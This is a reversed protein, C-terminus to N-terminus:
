LLEIVCSESRRPFSKLQNNVEAEKESDESLIPECYLTMRELVTANKLLLSLFHMEAPKGEFNSLSFRKFCCCSPVRELMLCVEHDHIYDSDFGQAFDLFELKPSKELLNILGGTLYSSFEANLELGTMNPFTPLHGLIDEADSISLLTDASVALSKVNCIGTLVGIARSVHQQSLNRHPLDISANVLSSIGCLHFHGKLTSTFKLHILNPANVKVACSLADAWLSRDDEITLRKLTPVSITLTKINKWGCNILALEQLVPCNSFLHQTSEDDSFTLNDFVLTKLSSLYIFSPPKLVCQMFLKLVLLSECTFLCCPLLFRTRVPLDLNLEQVNHRIAASIWSNLRSSNVPDLINLHLRRIDSADHLLLVRDVFDSFRHCMPCQDKIKDIDKSWSIDDLNIDLISTWLYQWRRSLISTRISDKTSLFSLIHHLVIDSLSSIVDMGEGFTVDKSLKQHKSTPLLVVDDM